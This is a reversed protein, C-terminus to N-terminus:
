THSNLVRSLGAPSIVQWGSRVQATGFPELQLRSSFTDLNEVFIVLLDVYKTTWFLPVSTALLEPLAL